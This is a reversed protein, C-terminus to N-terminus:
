YHYESKYNVIREIMEMQNSDTYFVGKNNIDVSQFNVTVDVGEVAKSIGDLDVTVEILPSERFM